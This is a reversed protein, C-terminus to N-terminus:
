FCNGFLEYLTRLFRVPKKQENLDRLFSAASDGNSGEHPNLEAVHVRHPHHRVCGSVVSDESSLHCYKFSFVFYYIDM